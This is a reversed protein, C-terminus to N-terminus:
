SQKKKAEARLRNQQEMVSSRVARKEAAAKGGKKGAVKIAEERVPKPIDSALINEVTRSWREDNNTKAITVKGARVPSSANHIGQALMSSKRMQQVENVHLIKLGGILNTYSLFGQVPAFANFLCQLADSVLMSGEHSFRETVEIHPYLYHMIKCFNRNDFVIEKAMNLGDVRLKENLKALVTDVDAEGAFNLIDRIEEVDKM